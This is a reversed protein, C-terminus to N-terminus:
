ADRRADAAHHDFLPRDGEGLVLGHLPVTVWDLGTPKIGCSCGGWRNEARPM